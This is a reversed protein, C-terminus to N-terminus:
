LPPPTVEWQITWPIISRGIFLFFINLFRLDENSCIIKAKWNELFTSILFDIKLCFTVGRDLLFMKCCNLKQKKPFNFYKGFTFVGLTNQNAGLLLSSQHSIMRRSVRTKFAKNDRGGREGFESAVSVLYQECCM